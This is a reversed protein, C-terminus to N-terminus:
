SDAAVYRAILSTQAEWGGENGERTSQRVTEPLEDFGEETIILVVGDEHPRLTFTVTTQVDTDPSAAWRFAFRTHPEIAVIDLNLDSGRHPEQMAAVEADVSTPVIRGHTTQGLVFPGDFEAGFWAGFQRSDAIAAWVRDLDAHLVIQKEIRDQIAM